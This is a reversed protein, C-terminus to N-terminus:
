FTEWSLLRKLYYNIQRRNSCTCSFYLKETCSFIIVLILWFANTNWTGWSMLFGWHYMYEWNQTVCSEKCDGNPVLIFKIETHVSSLRRNWTRMWAKQQCLNSSEKVNQSLLSIHLLIMLLLTENGNIDDTTTRKQEHGPCPVLSFNCRILGEQKKHDARGLPESLPWILGAGVGIKCSIRLNKCLVSMKCSRALDKCIARIKCFPLYPRKKALTNCFRALFVEFIIPM